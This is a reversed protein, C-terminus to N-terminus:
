KLPKVIITEGIPLYKQFDMDTSKSNYEETIGNCHVYSKM